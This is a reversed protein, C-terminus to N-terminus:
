SPSRALSGTIAALEASVAPDNSATVVHLLDAGDFPVLAERQVPADPSPHITHWPTDQGLLRGNAVSVAGEPQGRHAPSPHGGIYVTVSAWGSGFPMLRELRHVVFSVGHQTTTLWGSPVTATLAARGDRGVLSVERAGWSLQRPGARLTGLIGFALMGCGAPDDAANPSVYCEIRSLTRDPHRAFANMVPVAQRTTDLPMRPIAIVELGAGDALPVPMVRTTTGAPLDWGAVVREVAPRFDDALFQHLQSVMMVFREPPRDLQIRTELEPAAPAGMLSPPVPAVAAGAPPEVLLRGELLSLRDGAVYAKGLQSLTGMSGVKRLGERVM